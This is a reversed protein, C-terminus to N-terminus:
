PLFNARPSRGSDPLATRMILSIGPMAAASITTRTMTRGNQANRRAEDRSSISLPMQWVYRSECQPGPWDEKGGAAQDKGM